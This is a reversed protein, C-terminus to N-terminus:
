LIVKNNFSQINQMKRALNESDALPIILYTQEDQKDIYAQASLQEKVAIEFPTTEPKSKTWWKAQHKWGLAFRAGKFGFRWSVKNLNVPEQIKFQYKVGAPRPLIDMTSVISLAFSNCHKSSFRIEVTMNENDYAYFGDKFLFKLSQYLNPMTGTQYNKVIRCKIIFRYQEDKLYYDSFLVERYKIFKGGGKRNRSFGKAKNTTTFGFVEGQNDYYRINRGQGVHKGVLDLNKGQADEISLVLPFSFAVQQLDSYQKELLDITARAKPKRRYQWILLDSYAM